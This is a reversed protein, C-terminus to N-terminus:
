SELICPVNGIYHQNFDVEVADNCKDNIAVAVPEPPAGITIPVVGRNNDYNLEHFTRGTNVSIILSYSGPPVNTVDIWQCDLTKHYQDAWGESIGQHVCDFRDKGIPLLPYAAPFFDELCFGIKMGRAVARGTGDM